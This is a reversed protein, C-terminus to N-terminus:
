SVIEAMVRGVPQLIWYIANSRRERYVLGAGEATRLYLRITPADETRHLGMGETLDNAQTGRESRRYLVSFMKKAFEAGDSFISDFTPVAELPAGKVILEPNVQYFGRNQRLFTDPCKALQEGVYTKPNGASPTWGKSALREVVMAPNCTDSGMVEIMAQKLPPRDGRAVAQRGATARARGEKSLRSKKGESPATQPKAATQPRSAGKQYEDFLGVMEEVKAFVDKVDCGFRAALDRTLGFHLLICETKNAAEPVFSKSPDRYFMLNM